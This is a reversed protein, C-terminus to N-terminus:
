LLKVGEFDGSRVLARAEALDPLHNQPLNLLQINRGSFVVQAIPEMFSSCAVPVAMLAYPRKWQRFKRVSSKALQQRLTLVECLEPPAAKLLEAVAKKDLSDTITMGLSLVLSQHVRRYRSLAFCASASTPPM